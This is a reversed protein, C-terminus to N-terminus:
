WGFGVAVGLNGAPLPEITLRPATGPTPVRQWVDREGVAGLMGGLVTTVPTLVITLTKVPATRDCNCSEESGMAEVVVFAMTGLGVGTLFGLALGRGISRTASRQGVSADLRAVHEWPVSLVDDSRQERLFLAQSDASVFEGFAPPLHRRYTVRTRQGATLPVVTESEQAQLGAGPIFSLVLLVLLSRIHRHM